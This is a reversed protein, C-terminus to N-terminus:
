YSSNDCSCKGKNYGKEEVKDFTKEISGLLSQLTQKPEKKAQWVAITDFTYEALSYNNSREFDINSM